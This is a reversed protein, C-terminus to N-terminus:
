SQHFHTRLFWNVTYKVWYTHYEVHVYTNAYYVPSKIRGSRVRVLEKESQSVECERISM